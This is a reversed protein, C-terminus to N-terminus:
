LDKIRLINKSSNYLPVERISNSSAISEGLKSNSGFKNQQEQAEKKYDVEGIMQVNISFENSNVSQIEDSVDVTYPKNPSTTTQITPSFNFPYNYDEDDTTLKRHRRRYRAYSFEEEYDYDKVKEEEEDCYQNEIGLINMESSKKIPSMMTQQIKTEPSEYSNEVFKVKKSQANPDEEFDHSDDKNEGISKDKKPEQVNKEEDSGVKVKKKRISFIQLAIWVVWNVLITATALAIWVWGLSLAKDNNMSKVTFVGSFGMLVTIMVENFIAMANMQWMKYPRLISTIALM